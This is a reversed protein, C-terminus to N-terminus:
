FIPECIGILNDAKGAPWGGKVGLFIEPLIVNIEQFSDRRPNSAM